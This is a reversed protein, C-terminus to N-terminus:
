AKNILVMLEEKTEKVRLVMKDGNCVVLALTYCIMLM